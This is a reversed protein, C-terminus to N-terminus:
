WAAGQKAVRAMNRRLMVARDANDRSQAASRFGHASGSLALREGPESGLPCPVLSLGKVRSSVFFPLPFLRM